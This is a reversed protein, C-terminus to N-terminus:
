QDGNGAGTARSGELDQKTNSDMLNKAARSSEMGSAPASLQYSFAQAFTAPILGV